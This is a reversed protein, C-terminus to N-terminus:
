LTHTFQGVLGNQKSWVFAEASQLSGKFGKLNHWADTGSLSRLHRITMGNFEHTSIFKIDKKHHLHGLHMERYKTNSWDNPNEHAVILPLNQMKENNGHTFGILCKGYVKYKRPNANNDVRVNKNNNYWCELADGVYFAREFDHNGQVVLVDVPAIQTLLDIGKILLQRGARFTKQWRLDEEQPTGKTTANYPFSKDANFFDNGIPFLIRDIEFGQAKQILNNIANMFRKSAIKTDYNEGTEEHWCLKGFHLDFISIELLHPDKPKKYKIPVYEYCYDLLEQKLQERLVKSSYILPNKKLWAKVQYLPEIIVKGDITSGVEWKNVIHREIEWIDLDIKCEKVLDDISKIRNSVKSEISARNDKESFNVSNGEKLSDNALKLAKIQRKLPYSRLVKIFPILEEQWRPRYNNTNM